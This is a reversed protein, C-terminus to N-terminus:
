VRLVRIRLPTIMVGSSGLKVVNPAVKKIINLAANADANILLKCIKCRYLGRTIRNSKRRVDCRVCDQSTYSEEHLQYDIGYFACKTRLKDKFLKYPLQQFQQATKRRMPLGRKMDEWDGVIVNAIKNKLCFKTTYNVQQAMFNRMKHRRKILLKRMKNGFKIKQKDYISQLKAKEKNWWRNYSKIGSGELIFATGGTNACTAFNNLGLDIGLYKNKDLGHLKTDRPEVEYIYEIEMFKGKYKPIIRIQKLPLGKINPPLSFYLFRKGFNKIFYKGLSLRVRDAEIRFMDQPFIAQFHGEKALYRPITVIEPYKGKKKMILLVLFSRFNQAVVRLTQQAVQSPLSLYDCHRKLNEYLKDYAL